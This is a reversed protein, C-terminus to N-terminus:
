GVYYFVLESGRFCIHHLPGYHQELRSWCTWGYENVFLSEKRQERGPGGFKPLTRRIERCSVGKIWVDYGGGRDSPRCRELGAQRPKVDATCVVNDTPDPRGGGPCDLKAGAAPSASTAESGSDADGGNCGVVVSAALLPVLMQRGLVARMYSRVGRRLGRPEASGGRPWAGAIAPPFRPNVSQMARSWVM